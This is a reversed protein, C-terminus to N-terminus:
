KLPSRFLIHGLRVSTAVLALAVVFWVCYLVHVAWLPAVGIHRLLSPLVNWTTLHAADWHDRNISPVSLGWAERRGLVFAAINKFRLFVVFVHRKFDQQQYIELPLWFAVSACQVVVSTITVVVALYWVPRHLSRRYRLM